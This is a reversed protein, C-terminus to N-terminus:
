QRAQESEPEPECPKLRRSCGAADAIDRIARELNVGFQVEKRRRDEPPFVALTKWPILVMVTQTDWLPGGCPGTQLAQVQVRVPRLAWGFAYAGGWWFPLDTALDFAMFGSVVAPNWGSVFGVTM